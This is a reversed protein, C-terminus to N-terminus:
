DPVPLGTILDWIAIRGLAEPCVDPIIANPDEPDVPDTESSDENHLHIPDLDVSLDISCDECNINTCDLLIDETQSIYGESSALLSFKGSKTTQETIKGDLNTRYTGFFQFM